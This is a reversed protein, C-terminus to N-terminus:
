RGTRKRIHPPSPARTTLTSSVLSFFLARVLPQGGNGLGALLTGSSVLVYHGAVRTLQRASLIGIIGFAMTALGASLLGDNAFGAADGSAEGFLLFSLRLIVYIGVKTM